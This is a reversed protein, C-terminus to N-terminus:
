PANQRLPRIIGSEEILVPYGELTKPIKKKLDKTKKVVMVKLCLTKGDRMLGVYVGVVSPIAMLEKEHERLVENIDKPSMSAQQRTLGVPSQRPASCAISVLLAVFSCLGIM